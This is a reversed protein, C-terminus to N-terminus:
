LIVVMRGARMGRTVFSLQGLSRCPSESLFTVSDREAPPRLFASSNPSISNVWKPIVPGM